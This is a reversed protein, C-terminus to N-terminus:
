PHPWIYMGQHVMHVACTAGETREYTITQYDAGRESPGLIKAPM